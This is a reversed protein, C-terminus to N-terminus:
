GVGGQGEVPQNWERNSGSDRYTESGRTMCEIVEGESVAHCSLREECLPRSVVLKGLAHRRWRSCGYMERERVM